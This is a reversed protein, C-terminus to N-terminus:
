KSRLFALNDPRDTCIKVRPYLRNILRALWPHNITYTYIELNHRKSQWYVLPNLFLWFVGIGQLGAKYAQHERYCPWAFSLLSYHVSPLADKVALIAELKFSVISYLDHPIKELEHALLQPDIVEKLEIVLPTDKTFRLLEHFTLLAPAAERLEALTHEGIVLNKGFTRKLSKDHNIVLQSDKTCRVDFEIADVGSNQAALLSEKTNELALGAAGRHGIVKM